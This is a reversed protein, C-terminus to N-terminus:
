DEEPPEYTGPLFTEIMQKMQAGVLKLSQKTFKGSFTFGMKDKIVFVYKLFFIQDDSPIWKYVFEWAPNGDKITVEEDKVVEISDMTEIIPDIRERAFQYIGDQVLNRDIILMISHDLERERPGKFVYVTQDTWGEPLDFIFPNSDKGM